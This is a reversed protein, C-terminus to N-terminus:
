PYVKPCPFFEWPGSDIKWVGSITVLTFVDSREYGGSFPGSMDRTSILVRVQASSGRVTSSQLEVSFSAPDSGLGSSCSADAAALHGNAGDVDHALVATVYRQVVGEPTHPDLPAPAARTLVIALALAILLGVTALVWILTRDPRATTVSMAGDDTM